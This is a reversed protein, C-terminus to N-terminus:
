LSNLMIRTVHSVCYIIVEIFYQRQTSARVECPVFLDENLDGQSSLIEHIQGQNEPRGKLKRMM